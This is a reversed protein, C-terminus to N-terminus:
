CRFDKKNKHFLLLLITQVSLKFFLFLVYLRVQSGVLAVNEKFQDVITKLELQIEKLAQSSKTDAHSLVLVANAGAIEDFPTKSTVGKIFSLWDLIMIM